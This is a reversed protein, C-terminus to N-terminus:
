TAAGAFSGSVPALRHTSLFEYYARHGAAAIIHRTRPALHPAEPADQAESVFGDAIMRDLTTYISGRKLKGHSLDVFDSGYLGHPHDLLLRLIMLQKETM